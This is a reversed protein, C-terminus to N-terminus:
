GRSAVLLREILELLEEIAYPKRLRGTTKDLVAAEVRGTDRDHGSAFVIPLRPHDRRIFRAVQTGDIDPLSIDLIVADPKFHQVMGLAQRGLGVVAVEHGYDRLVYLVGEALPQNDEVLLIRM